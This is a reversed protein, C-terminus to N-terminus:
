NARKTTVNVDITETLSKVIPIALEEFEEGNPLPHLVRINPKAIDLLHVLSRYIVQQTDHTLVQYTLIDEVHNAIEYTLIDAVHNAIGVFHGIGEITISPLAKHDPHM